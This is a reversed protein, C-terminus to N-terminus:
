PTKSCLSNYLSVLEGVGLHVVKKEALELGKCEKLFDEKINARGPLFKKSDVLANSLNKNKHRFIEEIFCAFGKEDKAREERATSEMVVIASDSRPKPFFRKAHVTAISEIKYHYQALASTASYERFGPMAMLKGAFESQFVLVCLEPKEALIKLIIKKSLFYPPFSVAKNYRPMKEKLYDCCKLDLNKGNLEKELLECLKEDKEIAIVNSKELLKRTLFGTGAGIELVTDDQKLGAAEVIKEIIGMNIIFHQGKKKDPKFRYKVMLNNLELFLSM